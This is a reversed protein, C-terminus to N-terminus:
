CVFANKALLKPLRYVSKCDTELFKCKVFKAAQFDPQSDGIYLLQSPTIRERRLIKKLHYVKINVHNLSYNTQSKGFISKFYQSIRLGNTTENLIQNPTSSILYLQTAEKLYALTKITGTSVGKKIIEKKVIQGYRDTYKQVLTHTDGKPYQLEGLIEKIIVNRLGGRFQELVGGIVQKNKYNKGNFLKFYARRKLPLSNVLVGDFDFVIVSVM